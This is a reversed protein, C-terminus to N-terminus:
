SNLRTSKRDQRRLVAVDSRAVADGDPSAARDSLHRDLAREQEAGLPDDRDVVNWLTQLHRLLLAAGLGDVEVVLLHEISQLIQGSAHTGIRADVGDPE